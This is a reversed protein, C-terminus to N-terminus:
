GACWRGAFASARRRVSTLRQAAPMADLVPGADEALEHLLTRLDSSM